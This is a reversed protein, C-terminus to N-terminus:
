DLSKGDSGVGARNVYVEDVGIIAALRFGRRSLMLPIRIDRYNNEITLVSVPCQRFDMGQLVQIEAGETDVSLYDIRSIGERELLATLTYCDVEIVQSEGSCRNLKDKIRSIHRRDYTKLMGSLHEAIEPLVLFKEKRSANGVCCNLARCTRNQKLKDYAGPIPEIAIGRWGLQREFFYSNSFAVGDNAGIDVFFGYKLMGLLEAVFFDQGHESFYGKASIDAAAYAIRPVRHTLMAYLLRNLRGILRRFFM